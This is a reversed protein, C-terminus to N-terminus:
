GTNELGAAVGAVTLQVLALLRERDPHGAPLARLRELFRVQLESLPDISPNRLEITRRLGASGDLLRARGTVRLLGTVTREYEEEILRRIRPADPGDALAAYRRAVRLDVRALIVEANDLVSELFPWRLYLSRLRDMGAAGHRAEFDEFASGLGYWGPLDLRSQSWAFVWPIARLDAIPPVDVPRGRAAPRSGLRLGALEAIPTAEWFFRGFAPEEWVLARYARRSAEALEDLAAGGEAEVPAAAAEHEPTSAALVAATMLELERLAIAPDAYHAAIVEGQETLKLGGDLSGPALARIARQTPGGGRGIAGGRGHFITLRIGHRRAAGVLGSQARHLMWNAALYGSEKNSDSYGLMAEQRDGRTALHSRYGPDALLADLIGSCSALADATEFLPVVDLDPSAPPFGATATPPIAPDGALAGLRLVDLVDDAGGTFSVVYRSCAEPGGRAQMAAIARFTALVEAASVGPAVEESALAVLRRAAGAEGEGGEVLLPRVRELVARHVASDQRVEISALHFGFTEVQWRFERLEGDAVRELGAAALAAQMDAIEELLEGPGAYRGALPAPSATLWARTRRLREAVAGLRQRYPEDPFRSRLRRMTEPFAEEDAALRNSIAAALRERPVHVSLTQMLRTAVAEHGRLVHDAQLRLTGATTEATVNPNGDRDGGIWSGLRLFPAVTPGDRPPGDVGGLPTGGAGDRRPGDVDERPAGGGGLARELARYLRPVTRYLSGDFYVLASRVEDLPTPAATRMAATRWLLTIAELLRRRADAEEGPGIGPDDLREILEACRRLAVLLTRRRAETPHATLVPVISLRRTAEAVEEATHGAALLGRVAADLSGSPAGGSGAAARERARVTRVRHREGALNVLQFYLTFARIVPEADEPGIAAVDAALEREISERVEPDAERRLRIRDGRIREVLDALAPGEQEAIVQGLLSRLTAIDRDLPDLEVPASPEGVAERAAESM